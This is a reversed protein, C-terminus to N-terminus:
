VNKQNEVYTKIVDLKKTGVSGIFRGRTWLSPLRSKLEPFKQRLRNATYGKIKAVLNNVGISPDCQLLIHIHDEMTEMALIKFIWEKQKGKILKKFTRQM